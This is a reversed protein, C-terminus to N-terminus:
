REKKFFIQYLIITLLGFYAAFFIIAVVWWWWGPGDRLRPLFYAAQQAIKKAFILKFISGM